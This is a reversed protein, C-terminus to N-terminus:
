IPQASYVQMLGAYLIPSKLMALGFAYQDSMVSHFILISNHNVSISFSLFTIWPLKNFLDTFFEM